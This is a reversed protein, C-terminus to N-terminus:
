LMFKGNDEIQAVFFKVTLKVMNTRLLVWDTSQEVQIGPKEKKESFTNQSPKSKEFHVQYANFIYCKTTSFGKGKFLKLFNDLCICSSLLLAILCIKENGNM